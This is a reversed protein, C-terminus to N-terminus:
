KQEGQEAALDALVTVDPHLQLLSAPADTGIGGQFLRKLIAHKKVGTVLVLIKKASFITQMGMTLAATPVEAESAFFRANAHITSPTLDTKHTAAVLEAAPENFGIHGNEGLGLIQLDVGGCSHLLQEYRACEEEPNEAEGNPIFCREPRINIHDFLNKKMFYAYSQDDSKRIPYYEDLNFATVRSFDLNREALERYMGVPTSGTALGLISDPRDTIQQQVLDAAFCALAEATEFVIKKM